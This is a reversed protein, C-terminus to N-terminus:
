ASAPRRRAGCLLAGLGALALSSPEPIGTLEFANPLEYRILYFNGTLTGFDSLDWVIQPAEPSSTPLQSLDALPTVVGEYWTGSAGQLAPPEPAQEIQMGAELPLVNGSIDLEVFVDFFSLPAHPNPAPTQPVHIERPFINAFRLTIPQGTNVWVLKERNGREYHGARSGWEAGLTLSMRSGFVREFHGPQITISGKDDVVDISILGAQAALDALMGTLLAAAGAAARSSAIQM